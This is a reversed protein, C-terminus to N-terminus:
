TKKEEMPVNLNLIDDNIKTILTQREKKVLSAPLEHKTDFLNMSIDAQQNKDFRKASTDIRPDKLLLSAINYHKNEICTHLATKYRHINPNFYPNNLHNKVLIEENSGAAIVFKHEPAITPSITNNFNKVSTKKTFPFSASKKIKKKSEVEM